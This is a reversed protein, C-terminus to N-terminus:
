FGHPREVIHSGTLGFSPAPSCGGHSLLCDGTVTPKNICWLATDSDERIAWYKAWEPAVRWDVECLAEPRTKDERKEAEAQMADAYQWAESVLTETECVYGTDISQMAWDHALKLKDM